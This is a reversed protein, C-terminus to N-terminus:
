EPNSHPTLFSFNALDEALPCAYLAFLFYYDIAKASPTNANINNSQKGFIPKQM